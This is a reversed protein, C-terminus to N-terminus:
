TQVQTVAFVTVEANTRLNLKERIHKRYTDITKTSLHLDEAMEQTTMGRGIFDLIQQERGSLASVADHLDHASGHGIRGLARETMEPSLYVQGKLIRRIAQVLEQLAHEKNVYGMAGEQLAREAFLWDAHVSVMLVKLDLGQEHLEELLDFGSAHDLSIDVVALDPDTQRVCWIAEEITGAEGCDDLDLEGRILDALGRRVIPHDDVLVVRRKPMDPRLRRKATEM